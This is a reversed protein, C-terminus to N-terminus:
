PQAEVFAIALQTSLQLDDVTEALSMASQEVMALREAMDEIVDRIAALDACTGYDGRHQARAFQYDLAVLAERVNLSESRAIDPETSM